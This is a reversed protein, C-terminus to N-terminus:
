AVLDRETSSLDQEAPSPTTLRAREWSDQPLGPLCPGPAATVRTGMSTGTVKKNQLLDDIKETDDISKPRRDEYVSPYQQSNM